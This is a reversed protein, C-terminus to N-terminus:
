PTTSKDIIVCYYCLMASFFVHVQYPIKETFNVRRDKKLDYLIYTYAKRVMSRKKHLVQFIIFTVQLNLQNNLHVFSLDCRKAM